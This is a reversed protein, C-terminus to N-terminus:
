ALKSDRALLLAGEEPQLDSTHLQTNPLHAQLHEWAASRVSLQAAISGAFAVPVSESSGFLARATMQALEALERGADHLLSLASEDGEDAQAIVLPAIESMQIKGGNALRILEMCENGAFKAAIEDLLPSPWGLDRTLLCRRLAERGLWTGSGEDSVAPGHGGVRLERGERDRGYCISGTGAIVLVGVGEPFSARHAIVHDGYITTRANSLVRVLERAVFDHIAPISFGSLGVACASIDDPGLNATRCVADIGTLLANRAEGESTNGLKISGSIATALTRSEDGLAFATKTGGADIGLFYM